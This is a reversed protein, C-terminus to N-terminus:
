RAEDGDPDGESRPLLAEAVNLLADAADLGAKADLLKGQGDRAECLVEGGDGPDHFHVQRITTAHALESASRWAPDSKERVTNSFLSGIGITLVEGTTVEMPMWQDAPVAVAAAIVEPGITADRILSDCVRCPTGVPVNDLNSGCEGCTKMATM